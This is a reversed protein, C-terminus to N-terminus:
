RRKPRLPPRPDEIRIYTVPPTDKKFHTRLAPSLKRFAEVSLTVGASDLMAATNVTKGIIDFRKDERAGFLGAVVVGFHVKANFRCEWNRVSLLKDIAPKANLIAGVGRDVADEPFVVLAGDGIFKVLTGGAATVAAALTEYYEDLGDATESDSQRLSQASFRSLNTFVILLHTEYHTEM